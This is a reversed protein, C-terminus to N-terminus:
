WGGLSVGLDLVRDGKRMLAFKEQIERLKCSRAPYVDRRSKRLNFDPRLPIPSGIDHSETEHNHGRATVILGYGAGHPGTRPSGGRANVEGGWDFLLTIHGHRNEVIDGLGQLGDQPADWQVLDLDRM